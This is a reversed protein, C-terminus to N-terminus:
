INKTTLENKFCYNAIYNPKTQIELTYKDLLKALSKKGEESFDSKNVTEEVINANIGIEMLDLKTNEEETELEPIQYQDTWYSYIHDQYFITKKAADWTLGCKDIADAGFLVKHKFDQVVYATIKRSLSASLGILICDIKIKGLVKLPHATASALKQSSPMYNLHLKNLFEADIISKQAGSDLLAKTVKNKIKIPLYPRHDQSDMILDIAHNEEVMPDNKPKRRCDESSHNTYSCHTCPPFTKKFNKNNGNQNGYFTKDKNGKGGASKKNDVNQDKNNNGNKNEYNKKRNNSNNTYKRPNWKLTSAVEKARNLCEDYGTVGELRVQKAIFEPIGEMFILEKINDAVPSGMGNSALGDITGILDGLYRDFSELSQGEM